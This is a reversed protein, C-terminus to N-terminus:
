EADEEPEYLRIRGPEAIWLRGSLPLSDLAPRLALILERVIMITPRQPRLVIIGPTDQPPFRQPNSFDLDLTILVSGIERCSQYITEDDAGVLREDLVTDADHGAEAMLPALRVDINEDLKFKM